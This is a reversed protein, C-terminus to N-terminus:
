AAAKEDTPSAPIRDVMSWGAEAKPEEKVQPAPAEEKVEPAPPMKLAARIEVTRAQM